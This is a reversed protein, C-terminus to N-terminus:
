ESNLGMGLPGMELRSVAITRDASELPNLINFMNSLSLRGVIVSNAIYDASEPISDASEVVSEAALGRFIPRHTNLKITDMNETFSQRYPM